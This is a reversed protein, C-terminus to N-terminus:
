FRRVRADTQSTDTSADGGVRETFKGALTIVCMTGLKSHDGCSVGIVNFTPSLLCERHGRNAVGDDILLTIVRERATETGYSLNEGIADNWTGYRNVRQECLSADSGRHGTNGTPGQDKVLVNAGMCMGRSINLTSLPKAARLFAIADDLASVGEETIFAPRGPPQFKKDAFFPRLQELHAAYATPNSRVLNIEEIIEKELPSLEFAPAPPKTQSYAPSRSVVSCFGLLIVFSLPLTLNLQRPRRRM